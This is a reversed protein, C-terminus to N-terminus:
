RNYREQQQNRINRFPTLLWSKCPYGADGLLLGKGHEVETNEFYDSLKSQNLVTSDHVSGPWKAVINIIHCDEDVVVQCNISHYHLRNVYAEENVSPAIVQVHTGDILGVVNPIRHQSYFNQQSKNIEDPTTPFRIFHDKLNCLALTFRHVIRCISAVSLNIDSSDGLVRYYSGTSLFYLASLVQLLVPIAHSRATVRGLEPELVDCLFLIGGRSFHFKFLVEDDTLYELPNNRDKFVRERRIGRRINLDYFIRRRAAMNLDVKGFKLGSGVLSLTLDM